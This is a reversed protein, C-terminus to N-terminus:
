TQFPHCRRRPEPDPAPPGPVQSAPELFFRRAADVAPKGFQEGAKRMVFRPDLGRQIARNISKALLTAPTDNPGPRFSEFVLDDTEGGEAFGRVAGGENFLNKYLGYLGLGATGLGAAQSIPSAQPTFQSTETQRSSAAQPAGALTSGLFKIQDKDYDRQALFDKYALDLGAQTQQQQRTGIADLASADAQGLRQTAGGLEGLVAASRAQNTSEQNIAGMAKDYASSLGQQQIDDLRQGLNRGAEAEVIGHRSGGFAGAKSATFNRQQRQIDDGRIAERKAIDVVNQTYPNMYDAVNRQNLALGANAAQAGALGLYPQYAGVNARTLGFSNQTDPTLDAIRQQGYPQYPRAAEVDARSMIKQFADRFLPDSQQTVVQPPAATPEPTECLFAM